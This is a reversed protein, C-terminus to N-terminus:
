ENSSMKKEVLTELFEDADKIKKLEPISIIPVSITLKKFKDKTIVVADHKTLKSIYSIENAKKVIFSKTVDKTIGAILYDHRISSVADFPTYETFMIQMGMRMFHKKIQQEFASQPTLLMDLSFKFIWDFIEIPQLVSTNLVEELSIATELTADMKDREYEYIARRSVGILDALEGLSLGMQERLKKLLQGNIKVYYGGRKAYILPYVKDKLIHRLTEVNIAPLGYRLYITDTELKQRRNKEGVVLSKANFVSSIFKLENAQKENICDINVLTKILLILENQKAFIDFCYRRSRDTTYTEFGATTVVDLVKKLLTNEPGEIM